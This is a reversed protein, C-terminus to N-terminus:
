PGWSSSNGFAVAVRRRDEVSVVWLMEFESYIVYRGDPSWGPQTGYTPSLQQLGTGDQNVMFVYGNREFAFRRGDPSWAPAVDDDLDNWVATLNSGDPDMVFIDRGGTHGHSTFAIRGDRSWDPFDCPQRLSTIPVRDTGDANMVYIKGQDLTDVNAFAIRQGDPSWTPKGDHAGPPSLRVLNTGDSNILYIAEDGNTESRTFAVRDGAPSLAPFADHESSPYPNTTLSRFNTGDVNKLAIGRDDITREFAIRGVFPFGATTFDATVTEPMGSGEAEVLDSGISITYNTIPLLYEAPVVTASLGDPSVEVTGEVLNGDEMIGLANIVTEPIVPESFVVRVVGDIPADATGAAPETRVVSPSTATPVVQTFGIAQAAGTDITFALLDGAIGEVPVPDLGGSVTGSGL